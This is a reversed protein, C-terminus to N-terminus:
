TRPSPRDAASRREPGTTRRRLAAPRGADPNTRGPYAQEPNEPAAGPEAQAARPGAWPSLGGAGRPEAQTRFARWLPRPAPGPRDDTATVPDTQTRSGGTDRLGQGARYLNGLRAAVGRAQVTGAPQFPYRQAGRASQVDRRLPRAGATRHAASHPRRLPDNWQYLLRRQAHFGSWGAGAGAQARQPHLAGPQRGRYDACTGARGRARANG